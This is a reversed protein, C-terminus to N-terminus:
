TGWAPLGTARVADADLHDGHAHTLLVAGANDLCSPGPDIVIRGMPAEVAVTSQGHLSLKM